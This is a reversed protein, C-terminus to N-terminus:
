WPILSVEQLLMIVSTEACGSPCNKFYITTKLGGPKYRWVRFHCNRKKGFLSIANLLSRWGIQYYKSHTRFVKMYGEVFIYRLKEEVENEDSVHLYLTCEYFDLM